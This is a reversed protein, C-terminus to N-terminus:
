SRQREWGDEAQEWAIEFVAANGTLPDRHLYDFLWAKQRSSVWELHTRRELQKSDWQEYGQKLYDRKKEERRYFETLSKGSIKQKGAFEPRKKSNERLYYDLTLCERIRESSSEEKELGFELLHRYREERSHSRGVYGRRRYFGALAEYFSFPRQFQRELLSITHSFQCSNFFIEVMEEIEKLKRIEEYSIWKTSIVEYPADAGHILGYAERKAEMPTGKLVKLFGLQLATPKLRYVQDFSRQFTQYDEYPLGAILDLHLHTNGYSRITTVTSAIQYFPAYRNIEQLTKEHTSQVGIELQILGPRMQRILELDEEELLDAGIEFHFNTVQNDQELLFKWIRRSREKQCNFTRDVFKVQSVKQDLFFQLEGLVKEMSRFRLRRDISSMCYSCSFPCGRSSEYYIIRHLFQEMNEYVFPIADLDMFAAEGTSLIEKTERRLLLGPIEGEEKRSLHAEVLRAFTHEGEGRIVGSVQPYQHLLIEGSFGAEPGGLWVKTKPLVKWLDALISRVTAINWIYCSIGLLEPKREYLDALIEENKQNITYEAIEISAEEELGKKRLYQGTYAGIDYVALNSHIYKANVAMLVIKM